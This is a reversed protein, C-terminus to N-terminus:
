PTREIRVPDDTDAAAAAAARARDLLEDVSISRDSATVVGSAVGISRERGEVLVPPGLALLVRVNVIEADSPAHMSTLGVVITNEDFVAALDSGRLATAVRQACQRLAEDAIRRGETGPVVVRHLALWLVGVWREDRSALSLSRSLHDRLVAETALGTVPDVLGVERLTRHAERLAMQATVDSFIAARVAHGHWQLPVFRLQIWKAPRIEVLGAAVRSLKQYEHADLWGTIAAAASNAYESEADDGFIVIGDGVAEALILEPARSEGPEATV